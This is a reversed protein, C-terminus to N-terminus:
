NWEIQRLFHSSKIKGLRLDALLTADATTMLVMKDAGSVTVTVSISSVAVGTRAIAQSSAIYGVLLVEQYNNRRSELSLDFTTGGAPYNLTMRTQDVPVRYSRCIQQVISYFQVNAWVPTVLLLFCAGTLLTAMWRRRNGSCYM